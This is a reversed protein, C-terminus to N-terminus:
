QPVSLGSEKHIVFVSLCVVQLLKMLLDRDTYFSLSPDIIHATANRVIYLIRLIRWAKQEYIAQTEAGAVLARLEQDIDVATKPYKGCFDDKSPAANAMRYLLSLKQSLAGVPVNTNVQTFYSESFQAVHALAKVLRLMVYPNDLVATYDPMSLGSFISLEKVARFLEGHHYPELGQRWQDLADTTALHGFLSEFNACSGALDGNLMSVLLMLRPQITQESLEDKKINTKGRSHSEGDGCCTLHDEEDAMALYYEFRDEDGSILYALATNYFIAGKHFVIGNAQELELVTPIITDVAFAAAKSGMSFKSYPILIHSVFTGFAEDCADRSRALTIKSLEQRICANVELELDLFHKCLGWLMEKTDIPIPGPNGSSRMIQIEGMIRWAKGPQECASLYVMQM